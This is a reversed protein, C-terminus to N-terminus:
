GNKYVRTIEPTIREVFDEWADTKPQVMNTWYDTPEHGEYRKPHYYMGSGKKDPDSTSPTEYQIMAYNYGRNVASWIIRGDKTVYADKLHHAKEENSMPVYPMVVEKYQENIFKRLDPNKTISEAKRSLIAKIQANIDNAKLVTLRVWAGGEAM